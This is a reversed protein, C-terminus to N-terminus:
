TFDYSDNLINTDSKSISAPKELHTGRWAEQNVISYCGPVNRPLLAKEIVGELNFTPMEDMGQLLLNAGAPSIININDGASRFNRYIEPCGEVTQQTEAHLITEEDCNEVACWHVQLCKFTEAPIKKLLRNFDSIPRKIYNDDSFMMSISGSKELTRLISRISWLYGLSGVEIQDLNEWTPFDRRAANRFDAIGDFNRVDKGPFRYVISMDTNLVKLHKRFFANRDPRRDLNIYDIREIKM